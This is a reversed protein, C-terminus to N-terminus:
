RAGAAATEFLRAFSGRRALLEHPTGSEVIRAGELVLVRDAQMALELRHSILITTRGHMLAEYGQVVRRESVPDLSSTPEDLVLVAPDTLFARALAIRQREGASLAMGREGVQTQYREPLGEIFEAIGAARAAEELERDPAGPRAYRLNEAISAHFVFPEQDVLVVHRRLDALRVGRLDQGDLRVTGADPDLLRLLLDAITSKGSGSPGVVALTEGARVTFSVGDLVPAGRDYSLTVNEFEVNGRVRDFAAPAAAEVVEAPTEFIQGVRDLSVRATELSAYLGM